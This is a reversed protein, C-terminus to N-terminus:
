TGSARATKRGASALRRSFRSSTGSNGWSAAMTTGLYITDEHLTCKIQERTQIRVKEILSFCGFSM